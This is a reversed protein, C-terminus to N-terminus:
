QWTTSWEMNEGSFEPPRVEPMRVDRNDCYRLPWVVARTRLYRGTAYVTSSPTM